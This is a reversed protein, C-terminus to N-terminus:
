KQPDINNGKTEDDGLNAESISLSCGVRKIAKRAEEPWNTRALFFQYVISNIIMTAALALWMGSSIFLLNRLSSVFCSQKPM